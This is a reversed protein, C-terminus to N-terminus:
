VGSYRIELSQDFDYEIDLNESNGIYLYSSMCKKLGFNIFGILPIEKYAPASYHPKVTNHNVKGCAQSHTLIHTLLCNLATSYALLTPLASSAFSNAIRAFSCISM